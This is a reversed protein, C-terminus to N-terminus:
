DAGKLEMAKLRRLIALPSDGAAKHLLEDMQTEQIKMKNMVRKKYADKLVELLHELECPKQL